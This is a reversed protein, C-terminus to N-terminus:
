RPLFTMSLRSLVSVSYAGAHPALGAGAGSLEKFLGRGIVIATSAM